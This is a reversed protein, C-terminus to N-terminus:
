RCVIIGRDTIIYDVAIDHKDAPINKVIQFDYALGVKIGKYNQLFRDYYGKGFGIRHGNKDWAAGPIICMDIANVDFTPGNKPELIGYTGKKLDSWSKLRSPAITTSKSNLSPAYIIKSHLNRKIIKHTDVEGLFSVYVFISRSKRFHFFNELYKM